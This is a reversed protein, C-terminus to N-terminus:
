WAEIKERLAELLRTCQDDGILGGLFRLREATFAVASADDMVDDSALAEALLGDVLLEFREEIAAQLEPLSATRLGADGLLRALQARAEPDDAM